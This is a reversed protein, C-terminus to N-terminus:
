GRRCARPRGPCTEVLLDLRVPERELRLTGADLRALMLLRDVVGATRDVRPGIRALAAEPREDGALGSDCIGRLAAVPTRLEHAAAALLRERQKFSDVVPRLSWRALSAGIWIGVAGLLLTASWLGRVFAAHADIGPQPDGVVIIAACPLEGREPYTPIGRLRYAQGAADRGDRYFNVDGTVVEAALAALEPV